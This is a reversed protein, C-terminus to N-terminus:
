KDGNLGSTDIKHVGTGDFSAEGSGRIKNSRFGEVYPYQLVRSCIYMEINFILSALNGSLPLAVSFVEFSDKIPVPLRPHKVRGQLTELVESYTRNMM